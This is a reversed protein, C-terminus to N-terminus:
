VTGRRAVIGRIARDLSLINFPKTIVDDMGAELCRARDVDLVSATLGIVPIASQGGDRQRLQRTAALGDLRPMHLDMFVLDFEQEALLALAENGDNAISVRHGRAQLLGAAVKQNLVVDEVLLIRQPPCAAESPAAEAATPAPRAAEALEVEFWFCAGRGPTSDVGIIGGMAEVFRKCIALGLGTGGFRRTVSSDAQSFKRFLRSQAEQTIGIGTDTVAFRYWSTDPKRALSVTVAGHETFKIANGVLNLLIQRLRRADGVMAAPLDSLAVELVLKKNQAQSAFLATIRRVLEVPDFVGSDLRIEGAEARSYDLIDNVIALLTDASAHLTDVHDRQLLNLPTGDLLQLMGIMGNLPTRIEHSMTALFESEARAATEAAIRATEAISRQRALLAANERELIESAHQTRAARNMRNAFATIMIATMITFAFVLPRTGPMQDNLPDLWTKIGYAIVALTSFLATVRFTAPLGLGFALVVTVFDFLGWPEPDNYLRRIVLMWVFLFCGQALFHHQLNSPRARRLGLIVLVAVIGMLARLALLWPLAPSGSKAFLDALAFGACIAGGLTVAAIASKRRAPFSQERYAQEVAPDTFVASVSGIALRSAAGSVAPIM